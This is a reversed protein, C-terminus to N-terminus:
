SSSNTNYEIAYISTGNKNYALHMMLTTSNISSLNMEFLQLNTGNGNQPAPNEYSNLDPAIINGTYWFHEIILYSPREQILYSFNYSQAFMFKSFNGLRQFSTSYDLYAIRDGWYEIQNGLDEASLITSTSTTNGKLWLMAQYVQNSSSPHVVIQMQMITLILAIGLIAAVMKLLGKQICVSIGYGALIAVPLYLLSNWRVYIMTLPIIFAISVILMILAKEDEVEKMAQWFGIIAFFTLSLFGFLLWQLYAAEIVLNSSAYLYLIPSGYYLTGFSPFVQTLLPILNDWSGTSIVLNIYTQVQSSLIIILWVLAVLSICIIAKVSRSRIRSTIALAILILAYVAIAYSGGNWVDWSLFLMLLSLSILTLKRMPKKEKFVYLLFILSLGLFVPTFVDGGWHVVSQYAIAVPSVAILLSTALSARKSGTLKLCFIYGILISLITFIIKILAITGYLGLVGQTLYYPILVLYIQGWREGFPEDTYSLNNPAPMLHNAIAQKMTLFYYMTGTDLVHGQIFYPLFRLLIAFAIIILLPLYAKLKQM